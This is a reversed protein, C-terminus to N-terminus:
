PATDFLARGIAFIGRQPILFDALAGQSPAPGIEGLDAGDLTARSGAVRLARIPNVVFRQGNPVRGVLRVRGVGLMRGAIPGMAALLAPRRWWSEPMVAGVANMVGTSVTSRLIIRWDLRRQSGTVSISLDQLGTWDLNIQAAVVESVAAGFYRTCAQGPPADQFFTWRGRPDRHWVSRYGPGVSTVPFRRLALLHGSIFPLGM